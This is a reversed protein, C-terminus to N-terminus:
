EEEMLIKLFPTRHNLFERTVRYHETEMYDTRTIGKEDLLFIEANPYAMLIPSHTAIIMQSNTQILRHIISIMAMQSNPSLAAEPEDFLYIGEGRLRNKLLAFFSEGHSRTHLNGGYAYKIPGGPGPVRDMEEINTAVNYFSEARLFYNDKPFQPRKVLTISNQLGEEEEYTQFHFNKSGGERNFGYAVAIAEILTSKGMGNEGVLFTVPKTFCLEEVKQFAPITFPCSGPDMRDRRFRVKNIYM